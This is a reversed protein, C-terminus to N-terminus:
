KGGTALANLLGTIISSKLYYFKDAFWSQNYLHPHLNIDLNINRNTRYETITQSLKDLFRGPTEEARISFILRRVLEEDKEKIVM